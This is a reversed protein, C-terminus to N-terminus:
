PKMNNNLKTVLGTKSHSMKRKNGELKVRDISYNNRSFIWGASGKEMEKFFIGVQM